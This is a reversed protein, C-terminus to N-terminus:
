ELPHSTIPTILPSPLLQSTIPIIPAMIAM